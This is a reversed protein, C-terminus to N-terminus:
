IGLSGVYLIHHIKLFNQSWSIEEVNHEISFNVHSLNNGKLHVISRM